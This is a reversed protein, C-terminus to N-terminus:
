GGARAAVASRVPFPRSRAWDVITGIVRMCDAQASFMHDSTELYETRLQDGFPVRPFADLLQGSYYSREGTLIALFHVGNEVGTRYARELYARVAPDQLTSQRTVPAEGSMRGRLSRWIPNKGRVLNLWSEPRLARSRYHYIRHRLTRPLSPDLLVAGVVRPDGQAYLLSHDAGSCLGALIVRDTGRTSELSDLVERIDALSAELPSLADPRPESDGIGSLDFRVVMHGAEALARSLPVSMRNAGVRHVIGSNLIVVAPRGAAAPAVSEAIVGVLSKRPGLLLAQEKFAKM